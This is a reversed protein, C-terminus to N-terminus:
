RPRCTRDIVTTATTTATSTAHNLSMGVATPKTSPATHENAAPKMPMRSATSALTRVAWPAVTFRFVAIFAAKLPPATVPRSTTPSARSETPANQTTILLILGSM